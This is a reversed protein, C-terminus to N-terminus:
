THQLTLGHLLGEELISLPNSHLRVMEAVKEPNREGFGNYINPENNRGYTLLIAYDDRMKDPTAKIQIALREFEAITFETKSTNLMTLM